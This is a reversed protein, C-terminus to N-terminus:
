SAHVIGTNGNYDARVQPVAIGIIKINVRQGGHSEWQTATFRLGDILRITSRNRSYLVMEFGTLQDLQQIDEIVPNLRSRLSTGPAVASYDMDLYTAWSSGYYLRYPGRKKINILSQRWGLVETLLIDPTWGPTTPATVTTTIRNPHNKLGFVTYGGYTIGTTTGLATAEAEEVCKETAEGIWDTDLPTGRGQSVAIERATFFGDKFIVPIPVGVMGYEPRDADSEAIPDMAQRAGTIGGKTQSELTMTGFANPLRRVLGDGRLDALVRLADNEVREVEADIQKWQDKLLTATANQQMVPVVKGTRPHIRDIFSRGKRDLYPRMAMPNCGNAILAAAASGYGVGERIFEM